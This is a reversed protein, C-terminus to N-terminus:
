HYSSTQLRKMRVLLPSSLLMWQGGISRSSSWLICKNATSRPLGCPYSQQALHHPVPLSSGAGRGPLYRRRRDGLEEGVDGTAAASRNPCLLAAVTWRDPKMRRATLRNNPNASRATSVTLVSAISSPSGYACPCACAAGNQQWRLATSVAQGTM